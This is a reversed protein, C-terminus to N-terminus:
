SGTQSLSNESVATNREMQRSSLLNGYDHSVVSYDSLATNQEYKKVEMLIMLKREQVDLRENVKILKDSLEKMIQSPHPESRNEWIAVNSMQLPHNKMMPQPSMPVRPLENNPNELYYPSIPMMSRKLIQQPFKHDLEEIKRNVQHPYLPAPEIVVKSYKLPKEPINYPNNNIM